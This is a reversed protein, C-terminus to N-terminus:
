MVCKEIRKCELTPSTLAPAQVVQSNCYSACGSLMEHLVDSTQLKPGVVVTEYDQQLGRCVTEHENSQLGGKSMSRVSSKRGSM